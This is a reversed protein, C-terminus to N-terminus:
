NPHGRHLRRDGQRAGRQQAMRQWSEFLCRSVQPRFEIANTTYDAIAKDYEKLEFYALGRGHFALPDHSDLRLAATYDAIATDYNWRKRWAEGRNTHTRPEFTSQDPRAPSTPSNAM